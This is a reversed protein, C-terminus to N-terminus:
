ELEIADRGMSELGANISNLYDAKPDDPVGIEPDAVQNGESDFFFTTPYYSMEDLLTQLDGEFSILNTGTYGADKLIDECDQATSKSYDGCMTVIAVNDPLSKQMEAIQPMEDICPGCFTGWVNIMTVDAASLDEGSWTSGDSTQGSFGTLSIAKLASTDSSEPDSGCGACILAIMMLLTLLILTRKKM